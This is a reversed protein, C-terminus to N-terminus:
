EAVKFSEENRREQVMAMRSACTVRVILLGVCPGWCIFVESTSTAM